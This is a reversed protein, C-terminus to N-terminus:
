KRYWFAILILGFLAGGFHAMHAIGGSSGRAGLYWEIIVLVLIFYKARFGAPFFIFRLEMDPYLAMFAAMVGFIAGSAGLMPSMSDAPDGGTQSIRWYELGLYLAYAGVGCFLYYALFRKTGWQAEVMPGFMFLTIMNFALHMFSGHMFMYTFIQYPQFYPSGPMFAALGIRGLEHIPWQEFIIYSGFFFIVNLIILHKVVGTFGNQFM